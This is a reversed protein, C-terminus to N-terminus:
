GKGKGKTKDEKTLGCGLGNIFEEGKHFFSKKNGRSRKEIKTKWL